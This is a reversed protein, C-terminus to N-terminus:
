SVIGRFRNLVLNSMISSQQKKEVMTYFIQLSSLFYESLCLIVLMVFNAPNQYLIVFSMLPKLRLSAGPRPLLLAQRTASSGAMVVKLGLYRLRGLEAQIGPKLM